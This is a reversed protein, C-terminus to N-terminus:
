SQEILRREDQTLGYLDYVRSNIAADTAAISSKLEECNTKYKDFFDLWEDQQTLTLKIKQKKLEAVFGAFDLTDFSELVSTIKAEPLNNQLLQLFRARKTQLDKNLYLMKDALSSLQEALDGEIVPIPINGFYKWILQYGGQIQSCYKTILLFLGFLITAIYDM